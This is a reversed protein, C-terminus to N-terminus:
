FDLLLFKFPNFMLTQLIAIENMSYKLSIYSALSTQKPKVIRM